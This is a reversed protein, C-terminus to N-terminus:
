GTCLILLLGYFIIPSGTMSVMRRLMWRGDFASSFDNSPMGV